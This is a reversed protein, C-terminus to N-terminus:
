ESDIVENLEKIIAEIEDIRESANSSGSARLTDLVHKNKHKLGEIYTVFVEAQEEILSQGYTYEIDTYRQQGKSCTMVNYYKGQDVVMVENDIKFGLAHVKKRLMDVDLHPSLIMHKLAKLRVAEKDLIKGILMGGMGAIVIVEVDAPLNELGDSLITKVQESEGARDINRQARELPGKNIDMAYAKDVIGKKVLGIPLYGHDTGIDAMVGCKPVMSSITKLRESLNM